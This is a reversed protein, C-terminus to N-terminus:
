HTCIYYFNNAEEKNVQVANKLYLEDIIKFGNKELLKRLEKPSFAYYYRKSRENKWPIFLDGKSFIGFSLLHRIKAYLRHKKFIDQYILNWVSIILIGDKRLHKKVNKLANIRLTTSPLHHFSAMCIISDFKNDFQLDEFGMHIFKKNAQPLKRAIELLKDSIDVGTYSEYSFFESARGNGCGIDLVHGKVYKKILEWDHWPNKRTESFEGSIKNYVNKVSDSVKKAFFNHM